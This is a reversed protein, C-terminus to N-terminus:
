YREAVFDNMAEAIGCDSCIYTKNDKRSLANMVQEPNLKNNNCSPCLTKSIPEILKM